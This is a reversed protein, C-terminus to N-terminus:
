QRAAVVRQARTAEAEWQQNQPLRLGRGAFHDVVRTTLVFEAGSGACTVFYDSM